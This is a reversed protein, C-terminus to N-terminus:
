TEPPLYDAPSDVHARFTEPVGIDVFRDGLQVGVVLRRAALNNLTVGPEPDELFANVVAGLVAACGWIWGSAGGDPKVQIDQVVGNEDFRVVDSRNADTSSFLGLSAEFPPRLVSTLRAFGDLPDWITDPFGFQVVDNPSVGDMAEHLSESVSRPKGLVLETGLQKALAVIDKKDSRTVIRIPDCGGARLREVLYTLVPRGAVPVVEKSCLLGPLRTARGAAPVIGIIRRPDWGAVTM